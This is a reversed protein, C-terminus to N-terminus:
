EIGKGQIIEGEGRGGDGFLAQEVVQHLQRLKCIIGPDEQDTLTYIKPMMSRHNWSGTQYILVKLKINIGLYIMFVIFMNHLLSSMDVCSRSLDILASLFMLVVM